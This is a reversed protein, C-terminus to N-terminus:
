DPLLDMDDDGESEKDSDTLAERDIETERDADKEPVIVPDLDPVREGEDLPDDEVVTETVADCVVVVELLILPLLDCDKETECDLLPEEVRARVGELVNVVELEVETVYEEESERDEVSDRDFVKVTDADSVPVPETVTESPVDVDVFVLLMLRVCDDVSVRLLVWLEDSVVVLVTVVDPLKPLGEFLAM